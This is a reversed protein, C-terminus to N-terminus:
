PLAAVRETESVLYEEVLDFPEWDSEARALVVAGESASITLAALRRARPESLGGDALLSALHDRWGRFVRGAHALLAQDDAAVTVALVACGARMDSAELLRRWLGLFRGVVIPAPEGRMSELFASARDGALDLAAAVLEPKGGPFHHYTSGRPAGTAGLVQGFSTGELGKEALLRVAGAVMEQRVEGKAM